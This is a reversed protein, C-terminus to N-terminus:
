KPLEFDIYGVKDLDLKYLLRGFSDFVASIGNNACRVLTIKQELARCRVIHLHQHPGNSRGYWADNTINILARCSKNFDKFIAEYCILPRLEGFFTRIQKLKKGKQFESGFSSSWHFNLNFYKFFSGVVDRLPIYEGFPVLRVKDYTNTIEAEQNFVFISNYSKRKNEKYEERLAGTIFLGDKNLTKKLITALIEKLPQNMVFSHPPLILATEPWIIFDLKKTIEMQTLIFCRNLNSKLHETKWKERQPISPQILRIFIPDTQVPNNKLRLFGIGYLFSLSLSSFLPGKLKLNFFGVAILLTLVSVPFLGFYFFSQLIYINDWTFASLGWPFSFEGLNSQIFEFLVIFCCFFVSVLGRENLTHGKFFTLVKASNIFFNALCRSSLYALGKYLSLYFCLGFVSIHAIHSLGVIEFAHIIWYLLTVFYGLGYFFGYLMYQWSKKALKEGFYIFLFLSLVLFPFLHYPSQSLSALVGFISSLFCLYFFIM